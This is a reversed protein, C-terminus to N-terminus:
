SPFALGFTEGVRRLRVTPKRKPQVSKLRAVDLKLARAFRALAVGDSSLRVKGLEISSVEQRTRRLKKALQGQSLGLKKRRSRVLEGMGSSAPKEKPRTVYEEFTASPLELAKALRPVTSELIGHQRELCYISEPRVKLRIALGAQTLGLEERRLRVFKGFETKPESGRMQPILVQLRAAISRLAAALTRVQQPTLYQRQGLELASLSKQSMGWRRAVEAQTLGLEFRRSRLFEGLETKSPTMGVGIRQHQKLM